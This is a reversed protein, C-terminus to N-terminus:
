PELGVERILKPENQDLWDILQKNEYGSNMIQRVVNEKASDEVSSFYKTSIEKKNERYMMLDEVWYKEILERALSRVGIDHDKKSIGKKSRKKDSQQAIDQRRKEETKLKKFVKKKTELQKRIYKGENDASQMAGTIGGPRTIASPPEIFICQYCLTDLLERDHSVILGIGRYSKLAHMVVDKTRSDIHNTPEDILLLDPQQWLAIAIQIKKREGHSLSDWREIWNEEIKLKDRKVDSAISQIARIIEERGGYALAINLSYNDYKKTEDM